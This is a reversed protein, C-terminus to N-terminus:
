REEATYRFDATRYKNDNATATLQDAHAQAAAEDTFTVLVGDNKLYAQRYGTVGGSVECHIVYTM